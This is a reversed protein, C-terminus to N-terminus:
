FICYNFYQNLSEQEQKLYVNTHFVLFYKCDVPVSTDKSIPSSSLTSFNEVINGTYFIKYM